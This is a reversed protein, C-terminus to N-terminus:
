LEFADVTQHGAKETIWSECGYMVVPFVVAQLSNGHGGGPIKRVWPDFRHRKHKKCQCATEKGSPGGLFGRYTHIHIYTNISLLYKFINEVTNAMLSICILVVTFYSEM